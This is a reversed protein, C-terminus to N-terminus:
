RSSLLKDIALSPSLYIKGPAKNLRQEEEKAIPASGMVWLNVGGQYFWEEDRYIGNAQSIPPYRKM